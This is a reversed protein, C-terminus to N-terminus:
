PFTKSFLQIAILKM